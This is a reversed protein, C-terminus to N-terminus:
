QDFNMALHLAGIDAPRRTERTATRIVQAASAPEAGATRACIPPSAGGVLRMDIEAGVAWADGDNSAAQSPAPNGSWTPIPRAAELQVPRVKPHISKAGADAGRM